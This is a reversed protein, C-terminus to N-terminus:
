KKRNMEKLKDLWGRDNTSRLSELVSAGSEVTAVPLLSADISQFEVKPQPTFKIAATPVEGVSDIENLGDQVDMWRVYIFMPRKASWKVNYKHEAILILAVERFVDAYRPWATRHLFVEQPRGCRIITDGKHAPLAAIHECVQGVYLYAM